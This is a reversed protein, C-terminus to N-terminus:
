NAAHYGYRIEDLLSVLIAEEVEQPDSMNTSDSSYQAEAAQEVKSIYLELTETAMLVIGWDFDPSSFDLQTFTQQLQDPFYTLLYGLIGLFYSSV